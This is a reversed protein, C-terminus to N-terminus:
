PLEDLKALQRAVEALAREQVKRIMADGRSEIMEVTAANLEDTARKVKAVVAALAPRGLRQFFSRLANTVAAEALGLSDDDAILSDALHEYTLGLGEWQPRLLEGIFEILELPNGFVKEITKPNLLDIGASKLRSADSIRIRLDFRTSGSNWITCENTPM